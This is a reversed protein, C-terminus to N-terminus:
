CTACSRTSNSFIRRSRACFSAPCSPWRKSIGSSTSSVGPCCATNASIESSSRRLPNSTSNNPGRIDLLHQHFQQVLELLFLLDQIEVLDPSLNCRADRAVRGDLDVHRQFLVLHLPQQPFQRLGFTRHRTWM